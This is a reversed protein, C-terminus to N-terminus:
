PLNTNTVAVPEIAGLLEEVPVAALDDDDGAEDFPQALEVADDGADGPHM